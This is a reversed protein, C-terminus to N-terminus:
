LTFLDIFTRYLLVVLIPPGIIVTFLIISVFIIMVPDESNLRLRVNDDHLLMDHEM